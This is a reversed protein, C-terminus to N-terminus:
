GNNIRRMYYLLWGEDRGIKQAPQKITKKPIPRHCAPCKERLGLVRAIKPGPYHGAIIRGIEPKSVKYENALFQRSRGAKSAKKITSMIQRLTTM